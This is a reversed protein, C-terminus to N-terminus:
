SKEKSTEKSEWHSWGNVMVSKISVSDYFLRPEFRLTNGNKFYITIEQGDKNLYIHDIAEGPYSVEKTEVDKADSM